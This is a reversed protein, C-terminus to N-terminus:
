SHKCRMQKTAKPVTPRGPQPWVRVQSEVMLFDWAAPPRQEPVRKATSSLSGVKCWPGQFSGWRKSASGIAWAQTRCKSGRNGQFLWKGQM